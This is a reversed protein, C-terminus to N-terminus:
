SMSCGPGHEISAFLVKNEGAPGICMIQAKENKLEARILRQTEFVDKGWLHSADRIEVKDNNIYIYVPSLSKGSIILTDYGAFKLEAGWFGGMSPYNLYNNLPSRTVLLTRNAGPAATGVLSGAGFILLNDPSFPDTEPPVRDWFLKTILGLGGLYTEYMSRDGQTKKTNGRSLDVELGTGTWGYWM